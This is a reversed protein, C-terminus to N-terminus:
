KLPETVTHTTFHTILLNPERKACRRAAGANRPQHREAQGAKRLEGPATDLGGLPPRIPGGNALAVGGLDLSRWM